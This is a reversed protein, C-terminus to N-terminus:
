CCCCSPCSFNVSDYIQRKRVADADYDDDVAAAADSAAASPSVDAPPEDLFTFLITVQRKGVTIDM